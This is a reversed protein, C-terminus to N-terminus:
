AVVKLGAELADVESVTWAAGTGPNTEFLHATNAYSTSTISKTTGFHNTGGTRVAAAVDKSGASVLRIQNSVQVCKVSGTGGIDAMAYTDIGGAADGTNYTTDGDSPNDDVNQYNSGTSPSFGTNSGAGDPFKAYVVAQGVYEGTTVVISDWRLVFNNGELYIRDATSNGGNRTDVGTASLASDVVGNIKVEYSGNTDDITFKFEAHFWTQDPLQINGTALLTGASTGRYVKIRRQSGNDSVQFTLHTTTGDRIEFAQKDSSWRQWLWASVCSSARASSFQRVINNPGSGPSELYRDTGTAQPSANPLLLGSGTVTWGGQALNGITSGYKDFSEIWDIAM